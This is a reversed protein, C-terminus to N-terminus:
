CVSDASIKCSNFRDLAEDAFDPSLIRINNHCVAFVDGECQAVARTYGQAMSHADSIRIIQHTESRRSQGVKASVPAFRDDHNSCVVISFM